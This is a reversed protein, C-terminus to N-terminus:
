RERTSRSRKGPRPTYPESANQYRVTDSQYRNPDAGETSTKPKKLSLGAEKAYAAAEEYTVEKGSPLSVRLNNLIKDDKMIEAFATTMTVFMAALENDKAGSLQYRMPHTAEVSLFDLMGKMYTRLSHRTQEAM